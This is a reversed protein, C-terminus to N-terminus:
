SSLSKCAYCEGCPQNNRPTYCTWTELNLERIANVIERKPTALLPARVDVAYAFALATGIAEIFPARCDPFREADTLNCGIMVADFGRAQATAAAHALMVANRGARVLAGGGSILPLEPLRFVEFPVGYRNALGRAYELEILAAQGCDYGVALVINERYRQLCLASDTGGSLLLITKM